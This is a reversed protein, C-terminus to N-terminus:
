MDGIPESSIAVRYVKIDGTTDTISQGVSIGEPYATKTGNTIATYVTADAYVATTGVRATIIGDDGAVTAPTFSMWVHYKTNIVMSVTGIYLGDGGNYVRLINTSRIALTFAEDTPDTGYYLRILHTDAGNDLVTAEVEAYTYLTGSAQQTIAKKIYEGNDFLAYGGSYVPTGYETWTGPMSDFPEDLTYEFGTGETWHSGLVTSSKCYPGDANFYKCCIEDGSTSSNDVEYGDALATGDLYIRDTAVPDLNVLVNGITTVCFNMGDTITPMSLKAAATVFINGGYLENDSDTGLTYDAAKSATTTITKSAKDASWIKDVDGAGATDDVIGEIVSTWAYTNAGTAQLIQNDATPLSTMASNAIWSRTGAASSSLIFGTTSPNGLGPEAGITTQLEGQTADDLLGRGLATTSLAAISTLDADSTQKGALLDFVKDASWIKDTDGNGATDDTLEHALTWEYTGAGTAQLIQNDATPLSALALNAVWSRSGDTASSLIYGNSAPNGLAAEAGITTRSAAANADDLLSLGHATTTLAALSTLDSDKPQYAAAAETDRTLSDAVRADAITGSTVNDANIGTGVKSGSLSGDALDDLDLDADQKTGLLDFVKDASWIKDTDGDGATDDIGPAFDATWDYTGVGTSVLAQGAATPLTSMAANAVWTRFGEVDSSLIYGDTSPAGLAAEAGITTRSAEATTDDLLSIGHSTVTLASIDTLSQHIPQYGAAVEADRAISADIIGDIVTGSTVNDANIGTGIKTGSLSGDALDNLHDNADQKETTGILSWSAINASYANFDTGAELDLLGRMAAYNGAGILATGDVSITPKNAISAATGTAANWDIFQASLGAATGTTNQNLTDIVFSLKGTGDDYTVSIGTETGGLVMAGAIDQVIEDSAPIIDDVAQALEQLTDDGVGLNGDFLATDILFMADVETEDYFMGKLSIKLNAFTLSKVAWAAASDEIGFLDTDILTTKGTKEYLHWPDDLAQALSASGLLFPLILTLIKFIKM